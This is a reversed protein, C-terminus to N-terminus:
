EKTGETHGKASCLMLIAEFAQMVEKHLVVLSFSFKVTVPWAGELLMFPMATPPLLNFSLM